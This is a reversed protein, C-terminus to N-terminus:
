RKRKMNETQVSIMEGDYSFIVTGDTDTRYVDLCASDLRRLVSEVPLNNNDRGVSIVAYKPSVATLFGESCSTKSGHHPVKLLDASLANYYQILDNEAEEEIDGCFLASFSGYSLMFVLSDNNTDDYSKLPGLIEIKANGLIFTDGPSTIREPISKEKLVAETESYKDAHYASRVFEKAEVESLVQAMGGIHDKDPHSAIVYDLSEFGCRSMYDVVTDGNLYTGADLLAVAGECEILIADAKGVDIVHINLPADTKPHFGSLQFLNQWFKRGGSTLSLVALFALVLVCLRSIDRKLAAHEASKNTSKRINNKPEQM